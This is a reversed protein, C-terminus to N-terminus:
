LLGRWLDVALLALVATMAIPLATWVFERRRNLRFGAAAGANSVVARDTARVIWVQIALFAVLGLIGAVALLSQSWAPYGATPLAISPSYSLVLWLAIVALSVFM